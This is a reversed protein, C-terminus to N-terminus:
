RWGGHRRGDVAFGSGALCDGTYVRDRRGYITAAQACQYPLRERIGRSRLCSEPFYSVARPGEGIELACVPPIEQVGRHRWGYGDRVPIVGPAPARGGAAHDKTAEHLIAGAVAAAVLARVLDDGGARAPAAAGTGLALSLAVLGAGAVGARRRPATKARATTSAAAPRAPSDATM